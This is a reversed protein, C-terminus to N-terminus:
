GRQKLWREMLPVRLRWEDGEETILLRRRLSRYINEDDPPPQTARKRFASLYEWEGPLTSERHMLQYLVNHGSVIAKDLAQNFLDDDVQRKDEDNILDVITEAILQVLHPWGGAENHVREIGNKGWFSADFRPRQPSDKEGLISYRMPDTLLLYTEEKTFLPVEITRVSVLFSTWEANVLETIEHSGVFIWTINRHTQISERITTLLDLPFIHEGIKKDINEYEDLALIFQKNKEKLHSDINNLFRFFDSLSGRCEKISVSSYFYSSLNEYIYHIFDSLSNFVEPNEMSIIVPLVYDPLFGQLNKLITSKGVRRRGYLVLGPCSSSSMVQKELYGIVNYRPIFAEQNRDVPDGARFVQTSPEKLLISQVQKLQQEAIKGWTETAKRFVNSLPKQFDRLKFKLSEIEKLLIKAVAERLFPRSLLDFQTQLIRIEGLMIRVMSFQRLLGEGGEPIQSIINDLDSIKKCKAAQRSLLIIKARLAEDRFSPYNEIIREIIKTKSKYDSGGYNVLIYNISTCKLRIIDEFYITHSLYKQGLFFPWIRLNGSYLYYIRLDSIIIASAISNIVTIGTFIILFIWENIGGFIGFIIGIAAFSLNLSTIGFVIGLIKGIEFGLSFGRDKRLIFSYWIGFIVGLVIALIILSIIGITFAIIIEINYSILFEPMKLFYKYQEFEENNFFFSVVYRLFVTSLIVINMFCFYMSAMSKLRNRRPQSKFFEGIETPNIFLLKLRLSWVKARSITNKIIKFVRTM